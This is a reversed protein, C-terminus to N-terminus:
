VVLKFGVDIRHKVLHFWSHASSEAYEVFSKAIFFVYLTGVRYMKSPVKLTSASLLSSALSLIRFCQPM